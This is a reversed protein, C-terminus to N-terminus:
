RPPYRYSAFPNLVQNGWLERREPGTLGVDDAVEDWHQTIIRIQADIISRAETESLDYHRAAGLCTAFQSLRSGDPDIAMAQAQEGGARAQPCIDYAPTLELREGDWFAAHNRAHDDTNGVAINFVIRAFLERLTAKRRVFRHRVVDALDHYTAHRGAMEHLGLITLASVFSRRTGDTGRDFRDVLLVDRGAVDVLETNAVSLGVLRALRMAAAEAKMVPYTDTRASFKAIMNRSGDILTAKPRAGGLTSGAAMADGLHPDLEDGEQVADAAKLLDGLPADHRRPVYDSSSAQFDLSGPRNSGSRLLYTLLPVEGPDHTRADLSLQRMIVRQGWADPGGDRIVGAVDLGPGPEIRGRGLPLEPLYLPTAAGNALYSRGYAFTIVFGGGPAPLAELVGAPVPDRENPLWSWVYARDPGDSTTM